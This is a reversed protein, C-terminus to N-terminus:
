PTVRSFQCPAWRKSYSGGLASGFYTTILGDQSGDPLVGQANGDTGAFAIHNPNFVSGGTGTGSWDTANNTNNDLAVFSEFSFNHVTIPIIDAGAMSPMALAAATAILMSLVLKGSQFVRTRM